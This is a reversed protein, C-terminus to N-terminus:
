GLGARYRVTGSAGAGTDAPDPGIHVAFLIGIIKLIFLLIHLM